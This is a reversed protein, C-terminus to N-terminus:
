SQLDIETLMRQCTGKILSLPDTIVSLSVVTHSLRILTTYLLM